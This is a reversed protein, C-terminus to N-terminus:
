AGGDQDDAIYCRGTWKTRARGRCVGLLAHELPGVYRSVQDESLILAAFSSYVHGAPGPEWLALAVFRSGQADRATWLRETFADTTRGRGEGSLRARVAFPLVDDPPDERARYLIKRLWVGTATDTFLGGGITLQGRRAM